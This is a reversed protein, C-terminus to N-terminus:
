TDASSTITYYYQSRTLPYSSEGYFDSVQGGRQDTDENRTGYSQENKSYPRAIRHCSCFVNVKSKLEVRFEPGGDTQLLNVYSGFGRRM